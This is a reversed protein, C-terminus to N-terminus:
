THPKAYLIIGAVVGVVIMIIAMNSMIFSTFVFSGALETYDNGSVFDIFSNGFLMSLVTLCIMLLVMVAFFLFNTDIVWASYWLVLILAVFMLSFFVDWNEVQGDDWSQAQDRVEQPTDTQSQIIDNFQGSFKTVVIVLIATVFLVLLLIILDIGMAAKKNKLVSKRGSCKM